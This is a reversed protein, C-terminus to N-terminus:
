ALESVSCLEKLKDVARDIEEKQTFRSFSFRLSARGEKIANIGELVHSGKAAGSSCASGGSCAIGELDLLFLMMGSNECPPLTVNLVTYLSDKSASDGNFETGCIESVCRHAMHQKLKSVHRQHEELDRSAIELAKSLGVIGYINETGGRLQREQGGGVILPKIKLDKNVYLFGIGKPGHLKHAACTIFDIPLEQMDFKYHGLTQVTDSHFLANNAKCLSIVEKLPLLNAIENNGHMLSVLAKGEGNSLLASLHELDVHGNELLNVHIVKALGLAEMTDATKIVATHEISTTIIRTCGLDKVASCIALNDAETGGSTFCIEAPSCNLLGAIRRRSQEIATKTKRGFSHSSSPNGFHTEMYPVMAQIVEPDVPTTAANDLYIPKM